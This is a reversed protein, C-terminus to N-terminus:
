LKVQSAVSEMYEYGDLLYRMRNQLRWLLNYLVDCCFLAYGCVELNKANDETNKQLDLIRSNAEALGEASSYM